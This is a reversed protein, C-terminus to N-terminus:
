PFLSLKTASIVQLRTSKRAPALYLNKTAASMAQSQAIAAATAFPKKLSGAEILLPLWLERM